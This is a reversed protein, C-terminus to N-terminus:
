RPLGEGLFSFPAGFTPRLGTRAPTAYPMLPARALRAASPRVRCYRKRLWAPACTTPAALQVRGAVSSAAACRSRKNPTFSRPHRRSPAPLEARANHARSWGERKSNPHRQDHRISVEIQNGRSRHLRVEGAGCCALVLMRQPAPGAVAHMTVAQRMTSRTVAQPVSCWAQVRRWGAGQPVRPGSFVHVGAGWWELASRSLLPRAAPTGNVRVDDPPQEKGNEGAARCRCRPHLRWRGLRHKGLRDAAAVRANRVVM